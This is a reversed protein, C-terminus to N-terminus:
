EDREYNYIVSVLYIKPKQLKHYELIRDFLEYKELLFSRLQLFIYEVFVMFGSLISIIHYLFSPIGNFKPHYSEEM